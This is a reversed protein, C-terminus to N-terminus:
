RRAAGPGACALAVVGHGVCVALVTNAIVNLGAILAPARDVAVPATPSVPLAAVLRATGARLVPVARAVVRRRLMIPATTCAAAALASWAVFAFAAVPLSELTTLSIVFASKGDAAIAIAVVRLKCAQAPATPM